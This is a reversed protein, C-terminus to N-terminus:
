KIPHHHSKIEWQWIPLGNEDRDDDSILEWYPILLMRGLHDVITMSKHQDYDTFGAVVGSLFLTDATPFLVYDVCLNLKYLNLNADHNLLKIVDVGQHWCCGIIIEDGVFVQPEHPNTFFHSGRCLSTLHKM